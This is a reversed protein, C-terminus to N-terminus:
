ANLMNKLYKPPKVIMIAMIILIFTYKLYQSLFETLQSFTTPTTSILWEKFVFFIVAMYLLQASAQIFTVVFKRCYQKTADSSWCAVYVPSMAILVVLDISWILIKILIISAILCVLMAILIVPVMYIIEMFIDVIKGIVWLDSEGAAEVILDQLDSGPLASGKITIKDSGMVKIIAERIIEVIKLFITSSNDILYKSVGIRITMSVIGKLTIMEYKAINEIINISFFLLVLSYAITKMATYVTGTSLANIDVSFGLVEIIKGDGTSSLFFIGEVIGWLENSFNVLSLTGSFISTKDKKKDSKDKGAEIIKDSSENIKDQTEKSTSDVKNKVDDLDEKSASGVNGELWAIRQELNRSYWYAGPTMCMLQDYGSDLNKIYMNRYFEGSEGPSIETGYYWKLREEIINEVQQKEYDSLAAHCQQEPVIVHLCIFVLTATIFWRLIRRM